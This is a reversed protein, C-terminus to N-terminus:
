KENQKKRFPTQRQKQSCGLSESPRIAGAALPNAKDYFALDSHTCLALEWVMLQPQNSADTQWGDVLTCFPVRDPEQKNSVSHNVNNKVFTIEKCM